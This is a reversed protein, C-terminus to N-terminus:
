SCNTIMKLIEIGSIDGFKLDLLVVDLCYKELLEEVARLHTAIYIEFQDELAFELPACISKEDDIIALKRM